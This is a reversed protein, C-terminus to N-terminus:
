HYIIHWAYYKKRWSLCLCCHWCDSVNWRNPPRLHNAALSSGQRELRCMSRFLLSAHSLHTTRPLDPLPFLSFNTRPGRCLRLTVLQPSPSSHPWESPRIFSNRSPASHPHAWRCWMPTCLGTVEFIVWSASQSLWGLLLSPHAYYGPAEILAQCSRLCLLTKRQISLVGHSILKSPCGGTKEFPPAELSQGMHFLGPARVMKSLHPISGEPSKRELCLSRNTKAVYTYTSGSRIALATHLNILNLSHITAPKPPQSISGIVFIGSLSLTEKLVGSSQVNLKWADELIQNM